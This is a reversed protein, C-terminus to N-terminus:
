HDDDHEHTNEQKAEPYPPEYRTDASIQAVVKAGPDDGM